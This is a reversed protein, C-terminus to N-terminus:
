WYIGSVVASLRGSKMINWLDDEKLAAMLVELHGEASEDLKVEILKYFEVAVDGQKTVYQFLVAMYHDQTLDTSGDVLTREMIM